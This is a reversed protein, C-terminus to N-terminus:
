NQPGFLKQFSEPSPPAGTACNIQLAHILIIFVVILASLLPVAAQVLKIM